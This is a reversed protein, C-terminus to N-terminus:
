IQRVNAKRNRQSILFLIFVIMQNTKTHPYILFLSLAVDTVDITGVIDYPGVMTLCTEIVSCHTARVREDM